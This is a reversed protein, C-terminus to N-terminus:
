GLELPDCNIGRNAEEELREMPDDPIETPRVSAVPAAVAQIELNLEAIRSALTGRQYNLSDCDVAGETTIKVFGMEKRSVRGKSRRVVETLYVRVHSGEAWVKATYDDELAEVIKWAAETRSLM